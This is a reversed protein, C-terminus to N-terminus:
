INILWNLWDGYNNIITDDIEWGRSIKSILHWALSCSFFVRSTFEVSSNCIPCLISPIDIGRTSLNLRTPIKDLYVRWTFINVKIPIVKVWRTPVEVKPLFIDDIFNRASKVLFSGSADLSWVWRDATNPLIVVSTRSHLSDLQVEEVGGKPLGRFSHVLSPHQLKVAVSISKQEELAYLRPYISKLNDDGLWNEDWFSTNEGNGVKKRIFQMLDIGKSKLSHIDQIIDLWPSRKFRMSSSDLARIRSMNAVVKVGLYKFPSTFRSYVVMSAARNVVDQNVRVGMLKSKHFNIKLGSALYFCKQVNAITIINLASWEGVFVADNAYFLHYIMFSANLSIGKYLGADIVRKFSIYAKWSMLSCRAWLEILVVMFGNAGTKVLGFAKLSDILYELKELDFAKEFDVKFIMARKKKNKCWSLLEDLIFPGDLIF